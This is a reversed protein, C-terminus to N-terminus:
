CESSPRGIFRVLDLLHVSAATVRQPSMPALEAGHDANDTCGCLAFVAPKVVIGKRRGDDTEMICKFYVAAGDSGEDGSAHATVTM